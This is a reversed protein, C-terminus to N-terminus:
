HTNTSEKRVQRQECEPKIKEAERTTNDRTEVYTLSAPREVNSVEREDGRVDSICAAQRCPHRERVTVADALLCEYLM